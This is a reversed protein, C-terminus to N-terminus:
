GPRGDPRPRGYWRGYRMAWATLVGAWALAAALTVKAAAALPAAAGIRLLAAAQLLWFLAWLVDDAVIPRGGHGCTVRTVMALMLSGLCGMTVAHLGALPLWAEGTLAQALHSGGSLVLGIGLWCFGIHLMAVLRVKLSQVLGWAVALWFVVGGATVEFAGRIGHWAPAGTAWEIWPSAAEFGSVALMVHLVWFPRWADVMPVASSTFFPIMRHAVTVFVTVIFGWLATVVFTRALDPSGAVVAVWVGALSACGVALAAGICKAHLRDPEASARVLRWFRLTIAGLGALPLLLAAAAAAASVHGAVPWALWGLTMLVLPTRVDRASPPRVGLWKPGATFLFGAFFLPMFGFTMLAAHVVSPSLEYPLGIAFVRDLQITAWWLSSGAVVIMALFFALRHPAVTLSSWSWGAPPAAAARAEIPIDRVRV